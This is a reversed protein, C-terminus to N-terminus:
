ELMTVIGRFEKDFSALFNIKLDKIYTIITADTFSIKKKPWDSYKNWTDWSNRISQENLFHLDVFDPREAILNYSKLVLDKRQTRSWISTLVEDLVYDTTILNGINEESIKKLLNVSNTHNKDRTNILAIFIGSDLFIPM